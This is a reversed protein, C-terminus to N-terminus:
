NGVSGRRFYVGVCAIQTCMPGGRGARERRRRAADALALLASEASVLRARGLALSVDTRAVLPLVYTEEPVASMAAFIL